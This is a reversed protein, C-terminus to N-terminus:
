AVIREAVSLWKTGVRVPEVRTSAPRMCNLRQFIAASVRQRSGRAQAREGPPASTEDAEPPEAKEGPLAPMKGAGPLTATEAALEPADRGPASESGPVVTEGPLAPMKGAAQCEPRLCPTEQAIQQEPGMNARRVSPVIFRAAIAITVRTIESSFSRGRGTGNTRREPAKAMMMPEEM